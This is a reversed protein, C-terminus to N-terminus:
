IIIWVSSWDDSRSCWDVAGRLQRAYGLVYARKRELDWWSPFWVQVKM